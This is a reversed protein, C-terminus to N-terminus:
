LFIVMFHDNEFLEKQLITRKYCPKRIVHGMGISGSVYLSKVPCHVTLTLNDCILFTDLRFIKKRFMFMPRPALQFCRMSVIRAFVVVYTEM